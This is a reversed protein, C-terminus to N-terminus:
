NLAAATEPSAALEALQEQQDKGICSQIMEDIKGELANSLDFNQSL